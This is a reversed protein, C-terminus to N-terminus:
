YRIILKQRFEKNGSVIYLIYVGPRLAEADVGSAPTNLQEKLVVKGVLDVITLTFPDPTEAPLLITFKGHSPNPFVSLNENFTKEPSDVTGEEIRIDDLFVSHSNSNNTTRYRFRFFFNNGAFSNLSHTRENYQSASQPSLFDLITWTQGGNPSVEFYTTDYGAVKVPDMNAWSFRILCNQPLLVKPSRLIAEPHNNLFFSKACLLGSNANVDMEYWSYEPITIWASQAPWANFVTSDEFGQFYPFEDIVAETKFKWIPSAEQQAGNRAIVKWYHATSDILLGNLVFSNMGQVAPLNSGILTLNDAATGFYLDYSTTNVGLEWQLDCDVSVQTANDSPIPNYPTAPGSSQYYFRTNTLSGPYPNLYGSSGTGPFSEDSGCNKNNNIVSTTSNFVPGYTDNWRNEWHFVINQIGDYAIPTTFPIENWGNQFTLNGEFVLTYGNNLPDEYNADSFIEASFLKVFIKQNTVTKPGNICNLGISSISKAEGLDTHNYILSSWSYNWYSYVPMTNQTTGTGIEIYNQGPSIFAIMTLFLIAPFIQFSCQYKM